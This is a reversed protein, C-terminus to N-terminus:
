FWFIKVPSKSTILLFEPLLFTFMWLVAPTGALFDCLNLLQIWSSLPNLSCLSLPASVVMSLLCKHVSSSAVAGKKRLSIVQLITHDPGPIQGRVLLLRRTVESPYSFFSCCFFYYIWQIWFQYLSVTNLDYLIVLLWHTHLPVVAWTLM